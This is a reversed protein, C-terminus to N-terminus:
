AVTPNETIKRFIRLYGELMSKASFQNSVRQQLNIGRKKARDPSRLTESIAATLEDINGNNFLLGFDSSPIIEPIGGVRTAIVPTQCAGAEILVLGFSEYKATHVLCNTNRMLSAIQNQPKNELFTVRTEINLKNVLEKLHKLWSGNDTGGVCVINLEPYETAIRAFATLFIDQAKIPVYNGVNLLYPTDIHPPTPASNRTFNESDIGNHIVDVPQYFFKLEEIRNALAASCATIANTQKAIIKWRPSDTAIASVDSGHFSLVLKGKWLGFFKLLALPYANLTPFHVNVTTINHIRLDHQASILRRLLTLIYRFPLHGHASPPAPLNLHLFRRGQEDTREGRDIWDQIGISAVGPFRNEMGRWLREVVVDVGGLMDFEWPLYLLLKGPKDKAM